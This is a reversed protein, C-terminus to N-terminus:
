DDIISEEQDFFPLASETQREMWEEDTVLTGQFFLVCTILLIFTGIIMSVQLLVPTKETEQPRQDVLLDNYLAYGYCFCFPAFLIITMFLILFFLIAGIAPSFAILILSLMLLGFAIAFVIISLLILRFLVSFWRDRVCYYSKKLANMATDRGAALAFPAQSIYISSVIFLLFSVITILFFIPRFAASYEFM